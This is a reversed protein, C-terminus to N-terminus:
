EAVAYGIGDRGYDNGNYLLYRHGGHDFV